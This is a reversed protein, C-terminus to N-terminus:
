ILHGKNKRSKKKKLIFLGLLIIFELFLVIAWFLFGHSQQEIKKLQIEKTLDTFLSSMSELNVKLPEFQNNYQILKEHSKQPESNKKASEIFNQIQSLTKFITKFKDQCKDQIESKTILSSISSEFDESGRSLQSLLSTQKDLINQIQNLRTKLSNFSDLNQNSSEDELTQKLQKSKKEAQVFNVSQQNESPLDQEFPDIYDEKIQKESDQQFHDRSDEQIKVNQDIPEGFVLTKFSKVIHQDFLGGTAASIGFYYGPPLLTTMSICTTWTSDFTSQSIDYMIQLVQNFYTIKIKFGAPINRLNVPGCGQTIGAIGDNNKDYSRTGDNIIARISPNDNNRDNDFTDIIVALGQWFDKSGFVPGGQISKEKTYWFTIGDAGLKQGSIALEM